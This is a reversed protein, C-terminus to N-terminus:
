ANGELPAVLITADDRRRSFDRYLVGAILPAPRNILGPYATLGVRSNLGDSFMILTSSPAIAQVFEQPSRPLAAGLTGNQTILSKSAGPAVIMGTVNGIGAYTLTKQNHDVIALSMAAGRTKKLEDHTHEIIEASSRNAYREVTKVAEQAAETAGAGHGLGDVVMFVTRAEHRVILYSDGSVTEEKIALNIIGTRFRERSGSSLFRCWYVTGKDPASFISSDDALRGIAGLGQGATGITSFGDQMARTIDSIGPGSDLAMLDLCVDEGAKSPCILLEGGRGHLFINTAAETAAIGVDSRKEESFGLALAESM